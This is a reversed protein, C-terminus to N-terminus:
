TVVELIGREDLRPLLDRVTRCFHEKTLSSVKRDMYGWLCLKVLRPAQGGARMLADELAHWHQSDQMRIASREPPFYFTLTELVVMAPITALSLAINELVSPASRRLIMYVSRLASNHSLDFVPFKPLYDNRLILFQLGANARLLQAIVHNDDVAKGASTFDLKTLCHCSAFRMSRTFDLSGEDVVLSELSLVPPAPQLPAMVDSLRFVGVGSLRVVRLSEPFALSRFVIEDEPRLLMLFLSLSELTPRQMARYIARRQEEHRLGETWSQMCLSVTLSRLSSCADLLRALEREEQNHSRERPKNREIVVHWISDKVAPCLAFITSLHHQNNVSFDVPKMRFNACIQPCFIPVSAELLRMICRMRFTPWEVHSIIQNVVEQPVRM